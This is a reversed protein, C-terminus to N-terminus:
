PLSSVICENVIKTYDKGSKFAALELKKLASDTFNILKRNKKKKM